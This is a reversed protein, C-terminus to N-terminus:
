EIGILDGWDARRAQAFLAKDRKTILEDVVTGDTNCLKVAVKGGGIKPQM